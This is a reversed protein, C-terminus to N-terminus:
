GEYGFMTHLWAIQAREEQQKQQWREPKMETRNESVANHKVATRRCIVQYQYIDPAKGNAEEYILRSENWHYEYDGDKDVFAFSIVRTDDEASTFNKVDDFVVQQRGMGPVQAISVLYKKEM